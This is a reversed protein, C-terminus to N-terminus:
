LLTRIRHFLDRDESGGDESLEVRGGDPVGEQDSGGPLDSASESTAGTTPMRQSTAERSQNRTGAAGDSQGPTGDGNCLPCTSARERHDSQEGAPSKGTQRRDRTSQRGSEARDGTDGNAARCRSDPLTDSEGDAGLELTPEEHRTETRDATDDHSDSATPQDREALELARDARQRVDENVARVNGVYGRLAQTAAELEAIRDEYAKCETELTEVREALDGAEALAALDHDHDDTLAREVAALREEITEDM